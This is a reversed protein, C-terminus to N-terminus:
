QGQLDDLISLKCTIKFGIHSNGNTVLLLKFGIKCRKLWLLTYCSEHDDLTMAEYTIQIMQFGTHLKRNAILLLRPGIKCRKAM